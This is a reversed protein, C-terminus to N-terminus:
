DKGDDSISRSQSFRNVRDAPAMRRPLVSYTNHTVDPPQVEARSFFFVFHDLNVCRLDDNLHFYNSLIIGLTFRAFFELERMAFEAFHREIERSFVAGRKPSNSAVSVPPRISLRRSKSKVRKRRNWMERRCRYRCIIRRNENTTTGIRVIRAETQYGAFESWRNFIFNLNGEWGSSSKRIWLNSIM